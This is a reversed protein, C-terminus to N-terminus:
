SQVIMVDHINPNTKLEETIGEHDPQFRVFECVQSCFVGISAQRDM